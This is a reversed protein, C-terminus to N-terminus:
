NRTADIFQSSSDIAYSPKNAIDSSNDVTGCSDVNFSNGEEPNLKSNNTEQSKLNFTNGKSKVLFENGMDFSKESFRDDRLNENLKSISRLKRRQKINYLSKFSALVIQNHQEVTVYIYLISVGLPCEFGVIITVHFFAM